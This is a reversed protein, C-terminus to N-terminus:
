NMSEWFSKWVSREIIELLSKFGEEDPTLEDCGLQKVNRGYERANEIINKNYTRALHSILYLDYNKSEFYQIGSYFRHGPLAVDLKISKGSERLYKNFKRKFPLLTAYSVDILLVRTMMVVESEKNIMIDYFNLSLIYEIHAEYGNLCM